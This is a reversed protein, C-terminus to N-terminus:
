KRVNIDLYRVIKMASGPHGRFGKVGVKAHYVGPPDGTTVFIEDHNAGGFTINSVWKAPIKVYGLVEAKPGLVTIRGQGHHRHDGAVWLNGEADFALGDGESDGLDYFVTPRGLPESDPPLRYRLIKKSLSEVVYLYENALDVEIGNPYALGMAVKDIRGDPRVRFINGIPKEVSSGAPDTWYVNGERDVTLDNLSRVPRGEFRDVLVGVRGGPSVDLLAKYKNDAIMLHGDTRVYIGSANVDLYKLVNRKKSVRFVAESAFFLEGHRWAPGESYGPASAYYTGQIDDLRKAQNWRAEVSGLATKIGFLGSIQAIVLPIVLTATWRLSLSRAGLVVLGMLAWSWHPSYLFMEDGWLNHFIANFGIWGLLLVAYPKSREERLGKVVCVILLVSWALVGVVQVSSYQWVSFPSYSVSMLSGRIPKVYPYPGVAPYILSLLTYGVTGPLDTFLRHNVFTSMFWYIPGGQKGLLHELVIAGRWNTFFLVGGLLGVWAGLGLWIKVWASKCSEQVISAIPCFANTITTGGIPVAVVALLATRLHKRSIVFSLVFAVTLLGNSIGFHEPLAVIVNATFLLYMVFLLLIQKTGIGHVTALFALAGVGIGAIVAALARCALVAAYEPSWFKGLVPFLMRAVPRWIYPEMPHALHLFSPRPPPIEDILYQISLMTDSHFLVNPRKTMITGPAVLYWESLLLFWAIAVVGITAAM